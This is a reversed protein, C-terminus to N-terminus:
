GVIKMDNKTTNDLQKLFQVGLQYSLTISDASFLLGDVNKNSQTQHTAIFRCKFLSASIENASQLYKMM